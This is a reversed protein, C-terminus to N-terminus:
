YSTIFIYNCIVAIVAIFIVHFSAKLTIKSGAHQQSVAVCDRLMLLFRLPNRIRPVSHFLPSPDATFCCCLGAVHALLPASQSHSPRQSVYQHNRVSLHLEGRPIM